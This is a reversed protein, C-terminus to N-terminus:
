RGISSYNTSSAQQKDPDPARSAAHLQQSLPRTCCDLNNPSPVPYEMVYVPTRNGEPKMILTTDPAPCSNYIRAVCLPIIKFREGELMFRDLDGVVGLEVGELELFLFRSVM